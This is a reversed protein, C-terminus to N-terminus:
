TAVGGARRGSRTEEGLAAALAQRGRALRSMVTGIPVGLTEAADRYSFDEICVLVLADRQDAPLRAIAARVDMLELRGLATRRGDEGAVEFDPDEPVERRRKRATDVWLNHVIRFMWSDLRTGPQWTDIAKLARECAGQVLDDAQDASGALGRAFRRLRPLMVVIQSPVDATM